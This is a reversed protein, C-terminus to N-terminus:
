KCYMNENLINQNSTAINSENGIEVTNRKIAKFPLNILTSKSGQNIVIYRVLKNIGNLFPSVILTIVKLQHGRNHNM